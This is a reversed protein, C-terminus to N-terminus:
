VGILRKKMHIIYDNREVEVFGKAPYFAAAERYWYAFRTHIEIIGKGAAYEEVAFLLKSGVGKGKLEPKVFLRKLWLETHSTSHTGVMGVVRDLKDIALYFVDGREFYSKEIDLLDERLAPKSWQPDPAYIGLADKASLFCFLMDDHYKKEYLVVSVKEKEKDDADTAIMKINM